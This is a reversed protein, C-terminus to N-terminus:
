RLESTAVQKLFSQYLVGPQANTDQHIAAAFRLRFQEGPNVTFLSREGQKMAARGFPNAVMLGYDRTHWWSRRFNMPDAMLTIGLARGDLTGSYDCWDSPQGWAQKAGQQGSSNVITGGNKEAIATAVRAGFGMEEQDGFVLGSNGGRFTAEWILLWANTLALLQFDNTLSCVPTGNTTRLLSETAFTLRDNRHTPPELFRVHEIRAKNRWFDQGSLDGFALWIGPHMTDHDAADQGALPPHNRTAKIGGPAHFNAFFPRLIREDRFVFTAVPQGTHTIVLRDSFRTTAFSAEAAPLTTAVGVLLAGSARLLSTTHRMHPLTTGLPLSPDLNPLGLPTALELANLDEHPM